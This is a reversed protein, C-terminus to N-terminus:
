PELREHHPSHHTTTAASATTVHFSIRRSRTRAAAVDLRISTRPSAANGSDVDFYSRALHRDAALPTKAFPVDCHGRSRCRLGEDINTFAGVDGARRPEALQDLGAVVLGCQRHRALLDLGARLDDVDVHVLAQEVALLRHHREEVHDGGLGVDGPHRHHDIRRLPVHDLSAELAHLALRDDVRDRHLLSLRREECVRALDQAVAGRHHHHREVLLALGVGDLALHRDAAPGVLQQSFFTPKGGSSM